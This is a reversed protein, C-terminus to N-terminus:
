VLCIAIKQREEILMRLYRRDAALRIGDNLSHDSGDVVRAPDRSLVDVNYAEVPEPGAFVAYRRDRGEGLGRVIDYFAGKLKQHPEYVFILGVAVHGEAGRKPLAFGASAM